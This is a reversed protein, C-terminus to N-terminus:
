KTYNNHNQRFWGDAKCQRRGHRFERLLEMLESFIEDAMKYRSQAIIAELYDYPEARRLSLGNDWLVCDNQLSVDKNYMYAYLTAILYDASDLPALDTM